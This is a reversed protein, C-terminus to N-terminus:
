RESAGGHPAETNPPSSTSTGSASNDSSPDSDATSEDTQLGCQERAASIQLRGEETSDELCELVDQPELTRDVSWVEVAAGAVIAALDAATSEPPSEPPSISLRAFEIEADVGDEHDNVTVVYSEVGLTEVLGQSCPGAPLVWLTDPHARVTEAVIYTLSSVDSPMLRPCSGDPLAVSLVVVSGDEVANAAAIVELVSVPGDASATLATADEASGECPASVGDEGCALARSREARDPLDIVDVEVTDGEDDTAEAGILERDGESLAPDPDVEIALEDIGVHPALTPLETQAMGPDVRSELHLQFLVPGDEGLHYTGIPTVGDVPPLEDRDSVVLREDAIFPQLGPGTVYREASPIVFGDTSSPAVLTLAIPLSAVRLPDAEDCNGDDGAECYSAVLSGSRSGGVDDLSESQWAVKFGDGSRTPAVSVADPPTSSGDTPQYAWSLVAADPAGDVEVKGLQTAGGATASRELPKGDPLVIRFEPEDAAFPKAVVLVAGLLVLVLGILLGLSWPSLKDGAPGSGEAGPPPSGPPPPGPSPAPPRPPPTGVPADAAGVETRWTEWSPVRVLTGDVWAFFGRQRLLPDVVYAVQWPQSFFNNHIFQDYESLFIGFHPHSHYWGVMRAGAHDREMVSNIHDWTEHTFRLSAIESIAGVAPIRATIVTTGTVAEVDGVLVGGQEVTTDSGVHADIETLVSAAVRIRGSGGGSGAPDGGVLQIDDSM